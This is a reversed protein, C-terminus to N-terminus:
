PCPGHRDLMLPPGEALRASSLEVGGEAAGGETFCEVKAPGSAQSTQLEVRYVGPHSVEVGLDRTADTSPCSFRDGRFSTVEPPECGPEAALCDLWGAVIRVEVGNVDCLPAADVTGIILGGELPEPEDCGASAVLWLAGLWRTWGM